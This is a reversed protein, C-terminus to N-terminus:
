IEKLYIVIKKLSVPHELGGLLLFSLFQTYNELRCLLLLIFNGIFLVLCLKYNKCDYMECRLILRQLHLNLEWHTPSQAVPEVTNCIIIHCPLRPTFGPTRIPEKKTPIKGYPGNGHFHDYSTYKKNEFAPLKSVLMVRTGYLLSSVLRAQELRVPSYQGETTKTRVESRETRVAMVEPWYEGTRGKRETLLLNTNCLLLRDYPVIIFM